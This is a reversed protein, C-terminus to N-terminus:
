RMGAATDLHITAPSHSVGLTWSANVLMYQGNMDQTHDGILPHWSKAAPSEGCGFIFSQITYSGTDFPCGGVYSFTTVTNSLPASTNGFIVNVIPDGLNGNCLQADSSNPFCFLTLSLFILIKM